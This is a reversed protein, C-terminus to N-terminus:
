EKSETGTRCPRLPLGAANEVSLLPDFAWAYRVAVPTAIQDNWLVLNGGDIRALAWLWGSDAPLIAFGRLGATGRQGTAHDPSAAVDTHSLM